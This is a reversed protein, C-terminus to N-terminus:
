LLSRPIQFKTGCDPCRPKDFDNGINKGFIGGLIAGPITGAMAGFPGLALGIKGGLLAGAAVGGLGGKVKGDIILEHTFGYGCSPCHLYIKKITEKPLENNM